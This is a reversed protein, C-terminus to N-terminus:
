APVAAFAPATSALLRLYHSTLPPPPCAAAPEEREGALAEIVRAADIQKLGPAAELAAARVPFEQGTRRRYEALCDPWNRTEFPARRVIRQMARRSRAPLDVRLLAHEADVLPLSLAAYGFEAPAHALMVADDRVLTGSRYGHFIAGVGEMGFRELEVARLAGLSGGGIVRTGLALLSLIEKHWVTPALKFVGDVLAVAAPPDDLLSALDGCRAPPRVEIGEPITLGAISPGAFLLRRTGRGRTALRAPAGLTSSRIKRREGNLLGPAVTHALHLGPVPPEHDFAIVPLSTLERARALLFELCEASSRCDASPVNRWDLTGDGFALSWFFVEATREGGADYDAPGMDDRTGAILSARTQVAELLARLFAVRAIPHCGSGAVPAMGDLRPGSDILACQIAAFGAEHAMSWAKVHFGAAEVLRLLRRIPPDDITALVIQGALRQRPTLRAFLAAGHHELLEGVGSVLAETRDNGCALGISTAPYEVTARTYDLSLFDWPVPCARGSLLDEGVLWARPRHPDLDAALEDRPGSWAAIAAADLEALPRRAVPEPLSEASALEVAELLASVMAATATLGKGQSVSLSRAAPRTAQFVPIGPVAFATVNSVRTVGAAAGARVALELTESLPRSRLETM